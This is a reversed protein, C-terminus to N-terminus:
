HLRVFQRIAASHEQSSILGPIYQQNLQEIEPSFTVGSLKSMGSAYDVAEIRRARELDSIPSEDPNEPPM